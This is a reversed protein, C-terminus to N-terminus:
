LFSCTGTSHHCELTMLEEASFGSEMDPCDPELDISIGRANMCKLSEYVSNFVVESTM